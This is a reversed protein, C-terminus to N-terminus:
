CSFSDRTVRPGPSPWRCTVRTTPCSPLWRPVLSPSSTAPWATSATGPLSTSSPRVLVATQLPARPLPSPPQPHVHTHMHTNHTCTSVYISHLPENLILLLPPSSQPIQPPPLMFFQLKSKSEWIDGGKEFICGQWM